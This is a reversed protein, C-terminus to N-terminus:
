RKSLYFCNIYLTWIHRGSYLLLNDILTYKNGNKVTFITMDKNM